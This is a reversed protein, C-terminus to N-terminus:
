YQKLILNLLKTLFILFLTIANSEPYVFDLVVIKSALIVVNIAANINNKMPVPGILPKEM